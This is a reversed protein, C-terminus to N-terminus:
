MLDSKYHRAVASFIEFINTGDDWVIAENNVNLSFYAM